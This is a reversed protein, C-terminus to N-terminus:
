TPPNDVRDRLDAIKEERTALRNFVFEATAGDILWFLGAIAFSVLPSFPLLWALLSAAALGSLHMLVRIRTPMSM